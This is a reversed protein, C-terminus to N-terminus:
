LTQLMDQDFFGLLKKPVHGLCSLAAFAYGSIQHEIIFTGRAMTAAIASFPTIPSPRPRGHCKGLSRLCKRPTVMPLGRSIPRLVKSDIPGARGPRSVITTVRSRAKSENRPRPCALAM